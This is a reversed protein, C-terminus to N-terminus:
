VTSILAVVLIVVVIKLVFNVGQCVIQLVCFVFTQGPERERKGVAEQVGRLSKKRECWVM